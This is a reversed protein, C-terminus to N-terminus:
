RTDMDIQLGRSKLDDVIMQSKSLLFDNNNHGCVSLQGTDQNFRIRLLGNTKQLYTLRHDKLVQGAVTLAEQILAEDDKKEKEKRRQLREEATMGGSMIEKSM